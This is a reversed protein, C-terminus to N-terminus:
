CDLDFGGLNNMYLVFYPFQIIGPVNHVAAM